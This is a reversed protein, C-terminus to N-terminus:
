VHSGQLMSFLIVGNSYILSGSRISIEKIVNYDHAPLYISGYHVGRIDFALLINKLNHYDTLVHLAKANVTDALPFELIIKLSSDIFLNLDLHRHYQILFDLALKSPFLNLKHLVEITISPDSLTKPYIISISFISGSLMIISLLVLAKKYNLLHRDHNSFTDSDYNLVYPYLFQMLMIAIYFAYNRVDSHFTERFVRFGIHMLMFITLYLLVNIAIAHVISPTRNRRHTMLLFIRFLFIAALLLLSVISYLLLVNDVNSWLIKRATGPVLQSLMTEETRGEALLTEIFVNLGKLGKIFYYKLGLIYPLAVYLSYIIPLISMILFKFRRMLVLITSMTILVISAHPSTFTVGLSLLFEISTSKSYGNHLTSTHFILIQLLLIFGIWAYYPFWYVIYSHILFASSSLIVLFLNARMLALSHKGKSVKVQCALKKYVYYMTLGVLSVYVIDMVMVFHLINTSIGLIKLLMYPIIYHSFYYSHPEKASFIIHYNEFYKLIKSEIVMSYVDPNVKKFIAVHPLRLALLIHIPLTALLSKIHKHDNINLLFVLIFILCIFIVYSIRAVLPPM